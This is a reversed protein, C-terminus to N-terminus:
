IVKFTGCNKCIRLIEIEKFYGDREGFLNPLSVRDRLFLNQGVTPLETPLHDSNWRWSGCPPVLFGVFIQGTIEM